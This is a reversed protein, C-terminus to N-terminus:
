STSSKLTIEWVRGRVPSKTKPHNCKSFLGKWPQPTRPLKILLSSTGILWVRRKLSNRSNLYVSFMSSITGTLFMRMISNKHDLLFRCFVVLPQRRHPQMLLPRQIYSSNFWGVLVPSCRYMSCFSIPVAILLQRM